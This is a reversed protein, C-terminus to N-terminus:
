DEVPLQIVQIRKAAILQDLKVVDRYHPILLPDLDPPFYEPPEEEVPPPHIVLDVEKLIDLRKIARLGQKLDEARARTHHRRWRALAVSAIDRKPGRAGEIAISAIDKEITESGRTPFFPLKRYLHIWDQDINKVVVDCAKELTGDTGNSISPLKAKHNRATIPLDYFIKAVSDNSTKHLLLRRSVELTKEITELEAERKCKEGEAAKADKTLVTLEKETKEVLQRRENMWERRHQVTALQRKYGPLTEKLFRIEENLNDWTIALAEIDSDIPKNRLDDRRTEKFELDMELENCKNLLFTEEIENAEEKEQLHELETMLKSYETETQNVKYMASHYHDRAERTAKTQEDKQRELDTVDNHLFVSYNEDSKLWQSMVSLVTRICTCAEAFLMLFPVIECENRQCFTAVTTSFMTYHVGRNKFHTMQTHIKELTERIVRKWSRVQTEFHLATEVEIEGDPEYFSICYKELLELMKECHESIDAFKGPVFAQVKQYVEKLLNVNAPDGKYRKPDSGYKLAAEIAKVSPLEFYGLMRVLIKVPTAYKQVEHTLTKGVGYYSRELRTLKKQTAKIESALANRVDKLSSPPHTELHQLRSKTKVGIEDIPLLFPGKNALTPMRFDLVPRMKLSSTRLSWNGSETNLSHTSGAWSRATKMSFSHSKRTLKVSNSM